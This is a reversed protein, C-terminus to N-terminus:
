GLIFCGTELDAAKKNMQYVRVYPRVPASSQDGLVFEVHGHIMEILM